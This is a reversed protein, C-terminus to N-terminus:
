TSVADKEREGRGPLDCLYILFLDVLFYSIFASGLSM